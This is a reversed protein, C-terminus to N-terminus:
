STGANDEFQAPSSNWREHTAMSPHSPAKVTKPKDGAGCFALMNCTALIASGHRLAALDSESWIVTHQQVSPPLHSRVHLQALALPLPLAGSYGVPLPCPSLLQQPLEPHHGARPLTLVYLPAGQLCGTEHTPRDSPCVCPRRVYSVSHSLAGASCTM